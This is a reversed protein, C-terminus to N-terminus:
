NFVKVECLVLAGGNPKVINVFKGRPLDGTRPDRKCVYDQLGERKTLGATIQDVCKKDEHPWGKSSAIRIEIENGQDNCKSCSDMRRAIQVKSVKQTTALEM